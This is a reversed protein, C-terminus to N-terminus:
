GGDEGAADARLADVSWPGPGLLALAAAAGGAAFVSADLASKLGTGVTMGLAFLLLLLASAAAARRTSVGLVLAVGLLTEAATAIWGIWPVLADPAWPNLVATYDLFASFEGWAVGPAGPTGWLGFRDAVASLFGAGVALRLFVCVWGRIRSSPGGREM